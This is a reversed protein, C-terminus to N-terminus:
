LTIKRGAGLDEVHNREELKGWWFGTDMKYNEKRAAYGVGRMYRLRIVTVISPSSHLGRLEKVPVKGWGGIVKEREPGSTKGL